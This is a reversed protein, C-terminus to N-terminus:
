LIYLSALQCEMCLSSTVVISLSHWGSITCCGPVKNSVDDAASRASARTRNAADRAKADVEEGDDSGFLAHSISGFFGREKQLVRLLVM